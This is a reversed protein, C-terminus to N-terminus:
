RTSVSRMLRDLDAADVVGDHNLDYARVYVGKTIAEMLITIDLSDVIRDGNLDGREGCPGKELDTLIAEMETVDSADVVLSSGSLLAAAIFEQAQPGNLTYDSDPDMPDIQDNLSQGVLSEVLALDDCDVFGDFNVDGRCFAPQGLNTGNGLALTNNAAGLTMQYATSGSGLGIDKKRVGNVDTAATCGGGGGPADPDVGCAYLSASPNQDTPSKSQRECSSFSTVYRPNTSGSPWATTEGYVWSEDAVETDACADGLNGLGAAPNTSMADWHFYRVRTIQDPNFGPTENIENWAWVTYERGGAHSWAVEDVIQYPHFQSDLASPVASAYNSQVQATSVWSSTRNYLLVFTSSGDNELRKEANGHLVYMNANHSSSARVASSLKAYVDSGSTSSSTSNWLVFYGTGSGLTGTLSFGDLPYIEDIQPERGSIWGSSDQQGGNILAIAFGDLSMGAPGAIEIAERRSDNGDPNLLVESIILPSTKTQTTCVTALATNTGALAVLAGATLTMVANKTGYM